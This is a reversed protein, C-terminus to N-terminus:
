KQLGSLGNVDNAEIVRKRVSMIKNNLRYMCLEQTLTRGWVTILIKKKEKFPFVTRKQVTIEDMCIRSKLDLVPQLTVNQIIYDFFCM